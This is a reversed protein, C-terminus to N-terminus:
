NEAGVQQNVVMRFELELFELLKIQVRQFYLTYKPCLFVRLCFCMFYFLNFFINKLATPYTNKKDIRGWLKELLEKDIFRELHYFIELSFVETNWAKPISNNLGECVIM